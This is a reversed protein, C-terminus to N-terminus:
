RGIALDHVGGGPNWEGLPKGPPPKVGVVRRHDPKAVRIGVAKRQNSLGLASRGSPQGIRLELVDDLPGGGSKARDADCSADGHTEIQREDDLIRDGQQGAGLQAGDGDRKEGAEAGLRDTLSEGIRVGPDQDGGVGGNAASAGDRHQRDGGLRGVAQGLQFPEDNDVAGLDVGWKPTIPVKRPFVHHSCVAVAHGRFRHRRILRQHQEVRRTGRSPGLSGHVAVGPQRDLAGLVPGQPHVDPWPFPDHPDGVHTPHHPRQKNEAAQHDAAGGDKVVAGGIMRIRRPDPVDRFALAHGM